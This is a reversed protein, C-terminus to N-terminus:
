NDVKVVQKEEKEKKYMKNLTKQQIFSLINSIIWYFALGSPAITGFWLTMLPSFYLMGKNACGANNNKDKSNQNPQASPMMLATTIYTTVVAIILLILAPLFDGPNDMIAKPLLTPQIGLNFFGFMKLNLKSLVAKQEATLIPLQGDILRAKEDDTLKSIQEDTLAVKKDLIEPYKKFSDILKIEFYYDSENFGTYVEVPNDKIAEYNKKRLLGPDFEGKEVAVIVMEGIAKAPLEIMYTMPMRIVYFLAIIIPFQILVPLCGSTPNYGKEQYFKMTAENLKEKDNKYREQIRKLEPQLEQMKQTSRIQKVSLPLLILKYVITFFLLSLAYNQFGVTNYIFFMLKGFIMGIASLVAQM